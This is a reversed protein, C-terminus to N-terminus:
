ILHIACAGLAAGCTAGILDALLDWWCWHNAPARSDGFEKGAGAALAIAAGGTFAYIYSPIFLAVLAAGLLAIFACVGFHYLKDTPLKTM